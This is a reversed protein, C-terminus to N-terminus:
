DLPQLRPIIFIDVITLSVLAEVIWCINLLIRSWFSLHGAWKANWESSNRKHCIQQFFSVKLILDLLNGDIHCVQILCQLFFYWSVTVWVTLLALVGIFDLCSYHLVLSTSHSLLNLANLPIVYQLLSFSLLLPYAYDPTTSTPRPPCPWSRGSLHTRATQSSAEAVTCSPALSKLNPFDTIILMHSLRDLSFSLM